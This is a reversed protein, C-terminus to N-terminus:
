NEIDMFRNEGNVKQVKWVHFPTEIGTGDRRFTYRQEDLDFTREVTVAEEMLANTQKPSPQKTTRDEVLEMAQLLGMGRVDGILTHKKQLAELGQRFYDGIVAANTRLDEEEIVDIVARATACTVPNGGFTSITLGQFSDAIEPRAITLGIPVGNALGKASTLIDPEVEWHEIGFWKRGTRGWGTQVEDSIFDAGYQKVIRFALKFYEKPPTIFGGVGQIPEALFAAISGSTSFQIVNELDKACAVECDPYKLGLPCRYCYPNMAHVIGVELTAKRWTNMGTLGRALSSRGSYGHRLAVVEFNGTHMRAVQIATENAETGSNTFYSKKLAGPTIQALKEALRVMPENPFCTSVHQLRDIQTKTQATVKPNCHGVSVTVIGGFFDLYKKGEVDWVHQMSGHDMPLPESYYTSVCPFIFERQRRNIEDRTLPKTEAPISPASM